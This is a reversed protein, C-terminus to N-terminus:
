WWSPLKPALERLRTMSRGDLAAAEPFTLHRKRSLDALRFM